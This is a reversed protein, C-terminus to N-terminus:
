HLIPPESTNGAIWQTMQQLVPRFPRVAPWDPKTPKIYLTKKQERMSRLATIMEEKQEESYYENSNIEDIEEEYEARSEELEDSIDMASIVAHIRNKAADFEEVSWGRSELLKERKIFFEQVVDDYEAANNKMQRQLKAVSIRAEIWDKVRQETLHLSDTQSVTSNNQLVISFNGPRAELSFVFSSLIVSVLAIRILPPLTSSLVM